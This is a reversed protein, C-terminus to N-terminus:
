FRCEAVQEDSLGSYFDTIERFVPYDDQTWLGLVRAHAEAQVKVCDQIASLMSCAAKINANDDFYVSYYKYNDAYFVKAVVLRLRPIEGGVPEMGAAFHESYRHDIYLTHGCFKYKVLEGYNVDDQIYNKVM